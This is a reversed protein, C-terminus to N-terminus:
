IRARSKVRQTVKPSNNLKERRSWFDGVALGRVPVGTLDTAANSQFLTCLSHLVGSDDQFWRGWDGGLGMSFGDEMFSTEPALLTPSRYELSLPYYYLRRLNTLANSLVYTYLM